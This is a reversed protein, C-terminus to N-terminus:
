AISQVLNGTHGESPSKFKSLMAHLIVTNIHCCLVDIPNFLGTACDGSIQLTSGALYTTFTFGKDNAPEAVGDVDVSSLGFMDKITPIHLRNNILRTSREKDGYKLKVLAAMGVGVARVQSIM